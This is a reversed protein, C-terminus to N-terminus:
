QLVQLFKAVCRFEADEGYEKTTFDRNKPILRVRGSVKAYRKLNYRGGLESDGSERKEFVYIGNEVACSCRDFLAWSNKSVDPEMSNGVVKAVFMTENLPRAVKLRAWRNGAQGVQPLNFDGAAIELDLMEVWDNGPRGGDNEIVEFPFPAIDTVEGSFARQLVAQRLSAARRLNVELAARIEGVVSMSREVETVIQRQESIPPLAIKLKEFFLTPVRLQGAAGRMNMQAERRVEPGFLFYLLFKPDLDQTPRFVHFETSGAARGEHLGEALAYKGNEMCPTIKAFIVDGNQFPTYGKYVDKWAKTELKSLHGTEEEVAKMPVFSVKANVDPIVTFHRPNIEVVEEMCVTKWLKKETPVLKGECAAKLVAARYRKLNAQVRKLAAVGVEMRTLQREIEEVIQRQESISQPLWISFPSIQEFDVRPRDGTNLSNAFSVFDQSNLRYRLYDPDIESNGPLVIFESSCLGNRDARWVKNLYPRLRSYLVDGSQFRNATSKMEGAPVTGLLRSTQAEVHELGIYPLEPYEGPSVKERRPQVLEALTKVLLAKM